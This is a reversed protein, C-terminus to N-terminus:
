SKIRQWCSGWIQEPTKGQYDPTKGQYDPTKDQYVARALERQSAYGPPPLSYLRLAIRTFHPM